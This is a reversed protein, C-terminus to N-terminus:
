TRMVCSKLLVRLARALLEGALVERLADVDELLRVEARADVELADEVVVPRDLKVVVTAPGLASRWRRRPVVLVHV